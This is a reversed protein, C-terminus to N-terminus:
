CDAVGSSSASDYDSAREKPDVVGSEWDVWMKKKAWGCEDIAEQTSRRASKLRSQPAPKTAADAHHFTSDAEGERKDLYSLLLWRWPLLARRAHRPRRQAM